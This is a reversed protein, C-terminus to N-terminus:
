RGEEREFRLWEYCLALQGGQELRRSYCRKYVGRAEKIHRLSREMTAYASWPEYYRPPLLCWLIVVFSVRLHHM